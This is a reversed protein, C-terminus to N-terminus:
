AEKPSSKGIRNKRKCGHCNKPCYRTIEFHRQFFTQASGLKLGIQNLEIIRHLAVLSLKDIPYINFKKNM